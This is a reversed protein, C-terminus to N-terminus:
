LSKVRGDYDSFEDEWGELVEDAKRHREIADRMHAAERQAAIIKQKDSPLDVQMADSTRSDSRDESKEIVNDMFGNKGKYAPNMKRQSTISDVM